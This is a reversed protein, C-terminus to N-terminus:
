YRFRVDNNVRGAGGEDHDETDDLPHWDEENHQQPPAHRKVKKPKQKQRYDWARIVKSPAPTTKGSLLATRYDEIPGLVEDSLEKYQIGHPYEEPHAIQHKVQDLYGEIEELCPRTLVFARADM